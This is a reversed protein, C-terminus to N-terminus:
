PTAFDGKQVGFPPEAMGVVKSDGSANGSFMNSSFDPAVAQNQVVVGFQASGSVTNGDLTASEAAADLIIGFRGSNKIVNGQIAAFAGDFVGIGDGIVVQEVGLFVMGAATDDIATNQAITARANSTLGIGVYQNGVIANGTITLGDQGGADAQAWIGAAFEAGLGNASIQNGVVSGRAGASFLVGIRGNGQITNGEILADAESLFAGDGDKLRSVVIGDGVKSAGATQTNSITNREIRVASSYAGIAVEANGDFDSDHISVEGSAMEVRIGGRGGNDRFSSLGIEARGGSVLLGALAAGTIASRCIVIGGNDTALGGYGYAGSSDPLAGEIRTGEVTVQASGQAWVGVAIPSVIALGRLMVGQTGETVTIAFPNPAQVVVMADAATAEAPAGIVMVPRAISVNEAYTGSAVLVAGGSQANDVGQQITPYPHEASGDADDGPCGASVHVLGAAIEPAPPYNDTRCAEDDGCGPLALFTLALAGTACSFSNRGGM